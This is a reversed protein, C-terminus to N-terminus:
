TTKLTLSFVAIGVVMLLLVPMIFKSVREIGKEVGNYVIFSTLLMFAISYWVSSPASIFNSFCNSDVAQEGSGLLYYYIKFDRRRDRCLLDHDTDASFLDISWSVEM